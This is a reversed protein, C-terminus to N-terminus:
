NTDVLLSKIFFPELTKLGVFSFIFSNTNTYNVTWQSYLVTPVLIILLESSREQNVHLDDYTLVLYIFAKSYIIVSLIKKRM